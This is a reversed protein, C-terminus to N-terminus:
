GLEVVEGIKLDEIHTVQIFQVGMEKSLIELMERIRFRYDVSVFRFPEDLIVLPRLKPRALSLCALRLAFAALDVVGGGSATLPDIEMDDRVFVLRAETKGRKQEFLIRFEYPDDFVSELCRSVVGSIRDHVKQQVVQAVGQVIRQSEEVNKLHAENKKVSIMERQYTKEAVEKQLVLKEIKPKYESIM